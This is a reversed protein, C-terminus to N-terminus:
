GAVLPLHHKFEKSRVWATVAEVKARDFGASAAEDISKGEDVVQALISDAEAYTFGFEGEDTQGEWLGATPAKTLIPKPVGLYKALQYVQTKYLGRLPEIDSAEDGFRTYYGLLHESKNETGIVLAAHKRAQDYVVIMRARAMVNGKRLADMAPDLALVSDVIPQIDILAVNAELAGVSDAMLRADTVGQASLSGYPLLLAHVNAVGLARVALSYSTASDVGGSLAIVAQTFGSDVLSRRIFDALHDAMEAPDFTPM